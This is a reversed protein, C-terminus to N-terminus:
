VIVVNIVVNFNNKLFFFCNKQSNHVIRFKLIITLNVNKYLIVLVILIFFFQQYNHM